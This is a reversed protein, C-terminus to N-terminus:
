LTQQTQRHAARLLTTSAAPGRTRARGKDGSSTTSRDGKSAAAGPTTCAKLACSRPCPPSSGSGGELERISLGTHTGDPDVGRTQRGSSQAGQFCHSTMYMATQVHVDACECKSLLINSDRRTANKPLSTPDPLPSGCTEWGGDRNFCQQKCLHICVQM